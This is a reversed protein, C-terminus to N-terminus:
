LPLYLLYNYEVNWIGNSEAQDFVYYFYSQKKKKSVTVMFFSECFVLVPGFM